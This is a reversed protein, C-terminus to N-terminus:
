PGLDVVVAFGPDVLPSARALRRRRMDLVATRCHSRCSLAVPVVTRDARGVVTSLHRALSFLPGCHTGAGVGVVDFDDVTGTTDAALLIVRVLTRQGVQDFLGRLHHSDPRHDLLQELRSAGSSRSPSSRNASGNLSCATGDSASNRIACAWSTPQSSPSNWPM